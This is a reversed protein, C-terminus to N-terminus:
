QGYDSGQALPLLRLHRLGELIGGAGAAHAIYVAPNRALANRLSPECNGVVIGRAGTDFLARDNLSDGAVVCNGIDLSLERLVRLLTSGKNVGRPLVDIYLNGSVLVDVDLKHLAAATRMAVSQAVGEASESFSPHDPARAEYEAPTGRASRLHRNAAVWYSVRHPAEIGQPELGAVHMLASEVAQAGPWRAAIESEVADVREPGLGYVVSTGVDAILVAPSPLGKSRILEGASGVARGTVYILTTQGTQLERILEAAHQAAGGAFTGDLDTALVLRPDNM